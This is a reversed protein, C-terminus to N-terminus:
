GGLAAVNQGLDNCRPYYPTPCVNTINRMFPLGRSTRLHWGLDTDGRFHFYRARELFHLLSLVITYAFPLSIALPRSM